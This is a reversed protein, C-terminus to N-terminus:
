SLKNDWFRLRSEINVKERGKVTKLLRKLKRIKNHATRRKQSAKQAETRRKAM